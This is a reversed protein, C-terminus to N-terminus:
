EGKELLMKRATGMFKLWEKTPKNDIPATCDEEASVWSSSIDQSFRTSEKDKSSIKPHSKLQHMNRTETKM